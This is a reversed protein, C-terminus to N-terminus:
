EYHNLQELDLRDKELRRVARKIWEISQVVFDRNPLIIDITSRRFFPLKHGHVNPGPWGSKPPYPHWEPRGRSDKGRVYVLNEQASYLHIGPEWDAPDAEDIASVGVPYEAMDELSCVTQFSERMRREFSNPPEVCCLFLAVPRDQEDLARIVVRTQGPSAPRRVEAARISLRIM